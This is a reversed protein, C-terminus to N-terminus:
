TEEETRNDNTARLLHAPCSGGYHRVYNGIRVWATRWHAWWLKQGRETSWKGAKTLRM